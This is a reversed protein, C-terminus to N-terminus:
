KLMEECDQHEEFLYYIRRYSFIRDFQEKGLKLSNLGIQARLGKDNMLTLMALRVDDASECECNIGANYQEILDRYELSEQTNIVPLGAMAYDMHKNIISQAVGKSIPNVAIDCRSLIWVM